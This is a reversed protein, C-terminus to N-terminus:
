VKVCFSPGEAGQSARHRMLKVSVNIAEVLEGRPAVCGHVDELYALCGSNARGLIRRKCM